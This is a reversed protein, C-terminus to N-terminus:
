RRKEHGSRVAFRVVVPVWEVTYQEPKNDLIEVYCTWSALLRAAGSGFSLQTLSGHTTATIVM